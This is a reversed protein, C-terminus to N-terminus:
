HSLCLCNFLCVHKYLQEISDLIQIKRNIPVPFPPISLPLLKQLDQLPVFGIYKLAICLIKTTYKQTNCETCGPAIQVPEYVSLGGSASLENQDM